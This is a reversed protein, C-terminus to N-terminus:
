GASLDDPLENRDDPSRPFGQRLAEGVDRVAGILGQRARGARLHTALDACVQTWFTAPVHADVGTDGVVALKRDEISVYILVGNRAATRHMGLTAFVARARSLPDDPCVPDLHIRIEGSTHDETSAIEVRIAELDGADLLQLLWGPPVQAM